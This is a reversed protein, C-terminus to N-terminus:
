ATGPGRVPIADRQLVAHVLLRDGADDAPALRQARDGARDGDLQVRRTLDAAGGAFGARLWVTNRTPSTCPRMVSRALSTQPQHSIGVARQDGLIQPALAPRLQDGVDHAVAQRGAGAHDAAVHDLVVRDPMERVPEAALRDPDALREAVGEVLDAVHIRLRDGAGALAVRRRCFSISSCRSASALRGPPPSCRGDVPWSMNLPRRVSIWNRLPKTTCFPSSTPMGAGVLAIRVSM